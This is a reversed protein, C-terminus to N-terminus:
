DYRTRSKSSNSITRVQIVEEQLAQYFALLDVKKKKQNIKLKNQGEGKISLAPKELYKVIKMVDEIEKKSTILATMDSGYIKWLTASAAATSGLPILNIKALPKLVNTILPLDSKLVANM